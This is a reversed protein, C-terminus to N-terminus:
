ERRKLEYFSDIQDAIAFGVSECWVPDLCGGARNQIMAAATRGLRDRSANDLKSIPTFEPPRAVMKPLGGQEVIPGTDVRGIKKRSM